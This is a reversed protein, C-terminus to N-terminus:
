FVASVSDMSPHEVATKLDQVKQVFGGAALGAVDGSTVKAVMAAVINEMYKSQLTERSILANSPINWGTTKRKEDGSIASMIESVMIVQAGKMMESKVDRFVVTELKSGREVTEARGPVTCEARLNALDLQTESRIVDPAGALESNFHDVMQHKDTDSLCSIDRKVAEIKSRLKM